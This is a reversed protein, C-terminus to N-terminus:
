RLDKELSQLYTRVGIIFVVGGPGKSSLMFESSIGSISVEGCVSVVDCRVVLRRLIVPRQGHKQPSEVHSIPHIVGARRGKVESMM